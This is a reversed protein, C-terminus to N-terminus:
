AQDALGLRASIERAASRVAETARGAADAPFRFTPWSASLAAVVEGTHAFVPAGICRIGHEHEEDDLAFGQRRVKDLEAQLAVRSTLTRPTHPVLEMAALEAARVEPPAHALLVKGIATCYLPIRRGVRSFMRITHRSEVKLVYVAAEDELVGMHVTEGIEDALAEAVPKAAAYLDLHDLARAGTNFLRLTLAWRDQEDRRVHGLAHLTLLLRHATAKPLHVEQSIRELSLARERSLRELIAFARAVAHVLPPAEGRARAPPSRGGAPHSARGGHARPPHAQERRRSRPAHAM